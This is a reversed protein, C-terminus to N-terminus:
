QSGSEMGGWACICLPRSSTTRRGRFEGQSRKRLGAEETGGEGCLCASVCVCLRRVEDEVALM